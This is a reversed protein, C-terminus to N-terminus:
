NSFTMSSMVRKDKAELKKMFWLPYYKGESWDDIFQDYYKSGPNGNQGGPYVGYAETQDNLHVVMRWSPGHNKKTANIVNQGGGIRLHLRAFPTLTRLIHPIGTDKFKTWSLKGSQDVNILEPVAKKFANTVVQLLTEKNATSIDDIFKYSSDKLLGEILTYDSPWDISGKVKALEDGYVQVQLSDFWNLFIAVGQEDPDNRYNWKKVIELYRREAENLSSEDVSKLMLPLSTEAFLNYNDTQLQQMDKPTISNMEALRRNIIRGRYLDFGGGIYYPYTTDAPLQNASSVFGRLPNSQLPNESRPIVGQWMYSSDIGPMVFDGQRRWKAPFAGQQCISIDGAKSAFLCNQGPVSLYQIADYYDNYNSARNLKYFIKLENSPDHAKWRVAYNKGDTRQEGLGRFSNDYMVPGFVTYSVTDFVMAGGKVYFTDIVMDAQKWEGNFLYATRSEDKFKISYYDRVDRGANTFGFASSDNFGINICPSGPFSVGYVNIGPCSLQMEYWISPLGLGLHPDNCLIPKGSQTKSGAVAWNNSGNDKDPRYREISVNDNKGFYASDLTAPEIVKISPPPYVTGKSVIPDLSDQAIPYLKEYDDLGLGAKVNMNEFDSEGGALDLSMEKLFLFTKLNTWLEPEYGLMKYELPMSSQTLNGIYANVGATYADCVAKMEPDRNVEAEARKAGYVMGLRRKQRDYNVYLNNEGPGLMESLRGGAARTQFDMQWLRFKAHLYGQVFFMDAENQAFVHPIMRDDFYVEVKDKLEEFNLNLTKTNSENDANQWFGHQPSIFKGLAPISGWPKNLAWILGVTIITCIVFPIIRM